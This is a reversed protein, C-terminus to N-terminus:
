TKSAISSSFSARCCFNDTFPMPKKTLRVRRVSSSGAVPNPAPPMPGEAPRRKGFQDLAPWLTRRRPGNARGREEEYGGDRGFGGAGMLIRGEGHDLRENEDPGEDALVLGVMWDFGQGHKRWDPLFSSLWKLSDLVGESTGRGDGAGGRVLNGEDDGKPLKGRKSLSERGWM